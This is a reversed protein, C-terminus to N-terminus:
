NLGVNDHNSGRHLNNDARWCWIAIILEVPFGNMEPLPGASDILDQM